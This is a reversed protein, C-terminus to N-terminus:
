TITVDACNTWVQATEESDWRWSLVWDEGSPLDHPIYVHDSIVGVVWDGSCAGRGDGDCRLRRHVHANGIDVNFREVDSNPTDSCPLLGATKYEDWPCPPDFQMCGPPSNAARTTPGPCADPNKLGVKSDWIRPIPNRAWESNSPFVVGEGSVFVAKDGMAYTKGSGDVWKLTQKTKDFRLPTRQFCDETLAESAPCLRYSYGGGHNYRIGWAVEVSTGRKWAPRLARDTPKLVKSGKMGKGAFSTNKFVSDGGMTQWAYEGGAVGCSDVVPASGPARWPNFRYSDEVSGEDVDINLTWAERPLTGKRTSNCYSIRFGAKGAQPANGTIPKHGFTETACADCFISCGQSWWLCSQGDGKGDIASRVGAKCGKTPGDAGGFGNNCTSAEVPSKGGIFEQLSREVANRPTPVYLAGHAVVKRVNNGLLLVASLFLARTNWSGWSERM